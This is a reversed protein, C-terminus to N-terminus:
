FVVNPAVEELDQRRAISLEDSGDIFDAYRMTAGVARIYAPEAHSLAVLEDFSKDGYERLAYTLAEVDSDSLLRLNPERDAVVIWGRKEDVSFPVNGNNDLAMVEFPDRRLLGYVVRGLPGYEAAEYTDGSIPRGYRTVHYKDAYFTCKVVHYIDILGKAKCLWLVVEAAKRTNPIYRSTM